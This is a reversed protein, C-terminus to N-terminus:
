RELFIEHYINEIESVEKDTLLNFERSRARKSLQGNNQELFRVLLAVTKDPMEFNDDLYRKMEDYKRLYSVENPIVNKITDEVCKFLFEAQRTADFYRYYDITENLVDVNHDLTPKWKIFDLLPHSYSNLILRYDNISDLISASVPFIMGQRAFNKNALIHHILYRHIRGNGDEFPHIFVFGFTIIAAALVVDFDSNELITNTAILGEILAEVDQWRASIHEPLPKGTTRDHEGIFGGMQRFGMNTFRTNEIIIQQLRILEDKSLPNTGAQGIAKGWRTARNSFPNEGEITFSAQSDKLLLFASARQLVDKHITKLYEINQDSLNASLYKELKKTKYILPCFAVTGPLNNIIRHRPSRSGKIAYQQKEDILSIYNGKKLDPIKLKKVILWEFLFWIKRSYQGFPEIQVLEIIEDDSLIEFLKKLVLLNIGEYKLAFVLQKYLTDEPKHRPTFVQWEGNSYQRNKDSILSLKNPLPVSLKYADIIAGYGVLTGKEPATRGHFITIRRSIHNNIM